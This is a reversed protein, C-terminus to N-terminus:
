GAGYVCSLDGLYPQLSHCCSAAPRVQQLEEKVAVLQSSLEDREGQLCKIQVELSAIRSIHAQLEVGREESEVAKDQLGQSLLEARGQQEAVEGNLQEIAREKLLIEGDLKDRQSVAEALQTRLQQAAQEAAALRSGLEEKESARASASDELQAVTQTHTMQLEALQSSASAHQQQAAALQEQAHM